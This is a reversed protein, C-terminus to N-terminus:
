TNQKERRGEKYQDFWAQAEKRDRPGLEYLLYLVTTNLTEAVTEVALLKPEHWKWGQATSLPVGLSGLFATVRRTEPKFSLLREWFGSIRGQLETMSM